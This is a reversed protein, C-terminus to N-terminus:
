NGDGKEMESNIILDYEEQTIYQPTYTGGQSELKSAYSRLHNRSGRLLNDFVMTIDQNDVTNDLENQIDRIDMEEISLGVMLAENLSVEGQTTLSQYLDQLVPNEFIGPAKDGVPDILNYREVLFGVANMHKQESNSINDFAQLSWQTYFWDYVDRALKEEERIFTLANVEGESLPEVPLADIKMQMPDIVEVTQDNIPDSCASVILSLGLLFFGINRM